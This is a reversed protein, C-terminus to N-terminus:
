FARVNWNSEGGAYHTTPLWVTHLGIAIPVLGTPLWCTANNWTGQVVFGGGYIAALDCHLGVRSDPICQAQVQPRKIAAKM